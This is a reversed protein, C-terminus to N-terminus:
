RTFCIGSGQYYVITPDKVAVDDFSGKEGGSLIIPGGVWRSPVKVTGSLALDCPLVFLMALLFYCTKRM